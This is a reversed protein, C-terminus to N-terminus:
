KFLDRLREKSVPENELGMDITTDLFFILLDSNFLISLPVLFDQSLFGTSKENKMHCSVLVELCHYLFSQKVIILPFVDSQM